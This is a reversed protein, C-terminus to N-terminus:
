ADEATASFASIDAMKGAFGTAKGSFTLDPRRSV